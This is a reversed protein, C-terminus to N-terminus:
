GTSPGSFDLIRFLVIAAAVALWVLVMIILRRHGNLRDTVRPLIRTPGRLARATIRCETVIPSGLRIRGERDSATTARSARYHSM